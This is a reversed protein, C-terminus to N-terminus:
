IDKNMQDFAFGILYLIVYAMGLWGVLGGVFAFMVSLLHFVRKSYLWKLMKIVSLQKFWTKFQIWLKRMIM